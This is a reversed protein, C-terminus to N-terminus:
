SPVNPAATGPNKLLAVIALAVIAFGAFTVYAYYFGTLEVGAFKVIGGAISAGIIQGFILFQSLLGVATARYSAPTESTIIYRTPAGLLAGFGVGAIVMSAISAWLSTFGIAFIFLGAATFVTGLFLVARAGVRDLARGALPIVAVFVFAGIAAVAGAAAYSLHQAAILVTPIFFLAGELIGIVFELGYTIAVNRVAFLSRPVIANAARREYLWFGVLAVIGAVTSTIFNQTLGCMLALLGISLLSLGIADLPGRIRPANMPVYRLALVIVVIALPINAIFIWRWSVYHTVLGGVLPGIIAAVGWMAAVMGLAAGRRELPVTDGIAATAVPFIGGAGFAQLGRAALFIWYNPSVIALVSGLAFLSVCAVYIPRRGYRDALTSMIAISVVNAILYLTFIWALQNTAAGFEAALAPLAPSLVGLDLAGAFVGLALTVLLPAASRDIRHGAVLTQTNEM